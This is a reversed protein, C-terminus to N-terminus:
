NVGVTAIDEETAGSMKKKEGEKSTTLHCITPWGQRLKTLELSKQDIKLIM